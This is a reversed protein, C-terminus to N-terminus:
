LKIVHVAKKLLDCGSLPYLMVYVIHTNVGGGIELRTYTCGTACAWCECGAMTVTSLYM